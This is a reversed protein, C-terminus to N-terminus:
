GGGAESPKDTCVAGTRRNGSPAGANSCVRGGGGNAEGGPLGGGGAPSPLFPPGHSMASAWPAQGPRPAERAQLGAGRGAAKPRAEGQGGLLGGKRPSRERGEHGQGRSPSPLHGGGAQPVARTLPPRPTPSPSVLGLSVERGGWPAWGRPPFFSSETPSEPSHPAHSRTPGARGGDWESQAGGLDDHGDYAEQLRHEENVEAVFHTGGGGGPRVRGESGWGTGQGGPKGKEGRGAGWPGWPLMQSCIKRTENTRSIILVSGKMTVTPSRGASSPSM